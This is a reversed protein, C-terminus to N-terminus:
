RGVPSVHRQKGLTTRIVDIAAAASNLANRTDSIRDNEAISCALMRTADAFALQQGYVFRDLVHAADSLGTPTTTDDDRELTARLEDIQVKLATVIANFPRAVAMAENSLRQREM